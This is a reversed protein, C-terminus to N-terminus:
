FKQFQYLAIMVVRCRANVVRKKRGSMICLIHTDNSEREREREALRRLVDLYLLFADLFHMNQLPIVEM